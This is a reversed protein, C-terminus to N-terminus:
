NIHLRRDSHQSAAAEDNTHVTYIEEDQVSIEVSLPLVHEGLCQVLTM